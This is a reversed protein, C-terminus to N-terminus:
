AAGPVAPGPPPSLDVGRRRELILRGAVTALLFVTGWLLFGLRRAEPWPWYCAWGLLFAALGGRLLRDGELARRVGAVLLPFLIVYHHHWSIPSLLLTAGLVLGTELWYSRRDAERAERGRVVWALLALIILTALLFVIRSDGPAAAPLAQELPRLQCYISQNNPVCPDYQSWQVSLKAAPGPYFRFAVGAVWRWSNTVSWVPGVLVAPVVLLLFAAGVCSALLARWRRQYALYLVFLAPTVKTAIALGLSPGAPWVRGARFWAVAALAAGVALPTVQGRLLGSFLPVSILVAVLGMELTPAPGSGEDRRFQALWVAAGGLFAALTVAYWVGSAVALPLFLLPVSVVALFPPYNYPWGRPNVAAYIDGGSRVQEAGALYVTFDTRHAPSYAARYVANEGAALVLLSLLGVKLARAM